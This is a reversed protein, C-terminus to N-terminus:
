RINEWHYLLLLFMGSVFGSARIAYQPMSQLLHKPYVLVTLSAALCSRRVIRASFIFRTHGDM